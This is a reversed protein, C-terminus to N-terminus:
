KKVNEDEKAKLEAKLARLEAAVDSLRDSAGQCVVLLGTIKEIETEGEPETTRHLVAKASLEAVLELELRDLKM